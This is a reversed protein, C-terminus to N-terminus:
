QNDGKHPWHTVTDGKVIFKETGHDAIHFTLVLGRDDIAATAEIAGTSLNVARRLCWELTIAEV